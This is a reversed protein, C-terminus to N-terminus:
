KLYAANTETSNTGLSKNSATGIWCRNQDNYTSVASSFKVTRVGTKGPSDSPDVKIKSPIHGGADWFGEGMITQKQDIKHGIISGIKTM